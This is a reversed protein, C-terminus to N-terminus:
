VQKLGTKPISWCLFAFFNMGVAFVAAFALGVVGGVLQGIVLLVGTLLVILFLTRLGNRGLMLPDTGGACASKRARWGPNWRIM